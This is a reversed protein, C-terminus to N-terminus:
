LGAGARVATEVDFDAEGRGDVGSSAATKGYRGSSCASRPDAVGFAHLCDSTAAFDYDARLAVVLVDAEYSGHNTTVRRKQPDIATV